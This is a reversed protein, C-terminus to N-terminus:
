QAISSLAEMVKKQILKKKCPALDVFKPGQILLFYLTPPLMTRVPVLAEYKKQCFNRSIHIDTSYLVLQLFGFLSCFSSPKPM